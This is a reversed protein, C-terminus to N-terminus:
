INLKSDRKWCHQFFTKLQIKLSLNLPPLLRQIYLSYFKSETAMLMEAETVDTKNDAFRVIVGCLMFM